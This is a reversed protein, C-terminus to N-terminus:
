EAQQRVFEDFPGSVRVVENLTWRQRSVVILFLDGAIGARRTEPTVPAFALGRLATGETSRAFDVRRGEATLAFLQGTRRQAVFLAGGPSFGLGAPLPGKLVPAPEGDRGVRWIQGQGDQWPTEASGDAGIWLQGQEDVALMRPRPVRAYPAKDVQGASDLRVVVGQERDAVYVNGAADHAVGDPMRLLPPQARPPTGGALLTPRGDLMRYLVGLRRDRDYTTVFVEGRARVAAVQPNSLPPGHLFRPESERTMRAGGPPFRYIPGLDDIEGTRFRGGTKAVYLAGAPDLGLTAAAPIGPAGTQGGPDFGEGTVYVQAVFGPPLVLEASVPAALLTGLLAPLWPLRM